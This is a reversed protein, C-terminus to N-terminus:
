PQYIFLILIVSILHKKSVIISITHIDDNGWNQSEHKAISIKTFPTTSLIPLIRKRLLNSYGIFLIHNM